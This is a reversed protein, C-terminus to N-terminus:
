IKPQMYVINQENFWKSSVWDLKYDIKLLTLVETTPSGGRQGRSVRRDVFTPV